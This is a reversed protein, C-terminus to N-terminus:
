SMLADLLPGWIAVVAPSPLSTGGDPWHSTPNELDKTTAGPHQVSLFLTKGDPSFCPGTFEAAIPAVAFRFAQGANSGSLPIYFLSNNGFAKYKETNLDHDAVDTTIWLNGKSDFCMNDPCAFGSLEGGNLFTESKFNLALPDNNQETFKLISGYPRNAGKNMTCNLFISKSILDQACAEPRDLPTAGVLKAAERTRTLLDTHDTFHNKLLPNELSLLEWRGRELNAVYLSGKELSGKESAIFKYFHQDQADDGMYVVCRGDNTTVATAGEHSFRGLGTLKKATKTTPNIEVVWGYHEPPFPYHEDWAMDSSSAILHRKWKKGKKSFKVDGYFDHFNEECTLITGWPTKGGSCNGLTGVATKSHEIERDAVLPIKTKADIRFNKESTFDAVWSNKQKQIRFFSGGVNKQELDTQEKTKRVGPHIEPNFGSVFLPHVYEHNVWLYAESTNEGPLVAIFDNNFGFFDGQKNIPTKWKVLVEFHLGPALSLVDQVGPNLFPLNKINGRNKDLSASSCASLIYESGILSTAIGSRGMFKLFERRKM